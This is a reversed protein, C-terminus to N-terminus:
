IGEGEPEMVFEGGFDLICAMLPKASAKAITWDAGDRSRFILLKGDAAIGHGVLAQHAERAMAKVLEAPPQCIPQVPPVIPPQPPDARAMGAAAILLFGALIGRMEAERIKPQPLAEVPVLIGPARM